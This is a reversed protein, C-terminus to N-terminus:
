LNLIRLDRLSSLTLKCNNGNSDNQTGFSHTVARIREEVFASPISYHKFAWLLGHTTMDGACDLPMLRNSKDIRM